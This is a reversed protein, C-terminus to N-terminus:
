ARDTSPIASRRIPSRPRASSTVCSVNALTQREARRSRGPALRRRTTARCRRASRSRRRSGGAAAASPPRDARAHAPGPSGLVGRLGLPDRPAHVPRELRQGLV